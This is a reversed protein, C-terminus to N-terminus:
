GGHQDVLRGGQRRFPAVRGQLGILDDTKRRIDGRSSRESSSSCFSRKCVFRRLLHRLNIQFSHHVYHTARLSLPLTALRALLKQNSPSEFSLIQESQPPSM